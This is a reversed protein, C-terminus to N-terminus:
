DQPVELYVVGSEDARQRDEPDIDFGAVMPAAEEDFVRNIIDATEVARGIDRERVKSSAEVAVWLPARTDQRIGRLVFDTLFVRDSEADSIQGADARDEITDRFEHQVGQVAGVFVEARRLRFRRNTFTLIRRQLSRELAIGKLFGSDTKM